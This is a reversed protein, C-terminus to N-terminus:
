CWHLAAGEMCIMALQIKNAMPTRQIEFYQEAKSIWGMPDAMSFQCTSEECHMNRKMLGLIGREMCTVVSTEMLQRLICM